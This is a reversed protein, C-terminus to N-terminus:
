GDAEADTCLEAGGPATEIVQRLLDLDTYDNEHVPNELVSAILYRVARRLQERHEEDLIRRDTAFLSLPSYRGSHWRAATCIAAVGRERTYDPPVRMVGWCRHRNLYNRIAQAEDGGFLHFLETRVGREWKLSPKPTPSELFFRIHEGDDEFGCCTLLLGDIDM